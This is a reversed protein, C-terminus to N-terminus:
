NTATNLQVCHWCVATSDIQVCVVVLFGKKTNIKEKILNKDLKIKGSIQEINCMTCEGEM